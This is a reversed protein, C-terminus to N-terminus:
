KLKPAATPPTPAAGGTGPTVTFRVWQEIEGKDNKLALKVSEGPKIKVISRISKSFFEVGQAEGPARPPGGDPWLGQTREFTADVRIMGNGAQSAKVSFSSGVNTYEIPAEKEEPFMQGVSSIGQQGELLNLCTASLCYGKGDKGFDRTSDPSVEVICCDIQYQKTAQPIPQPLSHSKAEKGGQIPVPEAAEGTRGGWLAAVGLLGLMLTVATMTKLKTLLMTRLVGETIAVAKASIAGGPAAQGAAFQTAARITSSVVSAPLCASAANQSLAVALSGSSVGLGRQALRKALIRRATALRSAVTGEPCGLQRAAQKRTKGELDCLVVVSRYLDPLRSLEEDLVLQLDDRFDHQLTPEPMDTVQRERSHRRARTARAKLSTQNAVGYLWNALMERPVVSAAKRMLVLFTAQFADEADHQNRLIRLCAGWVMPGHRRVLAAVSADDRFEIFHGLLQGDTLGAGDERITIDCLHEIIRKFQGTAMQTM